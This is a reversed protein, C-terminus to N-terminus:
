KIRDIDDSKFKSLDIEISDFFAYMYSINHRIQM